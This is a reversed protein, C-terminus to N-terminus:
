PNPPTPPETTTSSRAVTAGSVGQSTLNLLTALGMPMDASEMVVHVKMIASTDSKNSARAPAVLVSPPRPPPAARTSASRLPPRKPSASTGLIRVNFDVTAERVQMAPLPLLSILPLKIVSTVREGNRVHDYAFSVYRLRGLKRGNDGLMARAQTVSASESSLDEPDDGGDFAVEELFRRFTDAAMADAEVIATLSAGLFQALDTTVLTTTPDAM